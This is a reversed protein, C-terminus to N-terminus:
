AIVENLIQLGTAYMTVQRDLSDYHRSCMGIFILGEILKCDKDLFRPHREFAGTITNKLSDDYELEFNIVNDFYNVSFNDRIIFEYGGHYSHRLKAVDYRPDGAIGTVGFSGRPDIFRLIHKDPEYLINSFCMDGHIVSLSEDGLLRDKILQLIKPWLTNFNSVARGNIVVEDYENLKSFYGFKSVLEKQYKITKDIYISQKLNPPSYSYAPRDKFLDLISNLQDSILEWDENGSPHGLDSYSYYEIELANTAGISSSLLRPFFIGLPTEHINHYYGIEDALRQTESTKIITSRLKDVEFSNYARTIFQKM